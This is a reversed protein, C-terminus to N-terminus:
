LFNHIIKNKLHEIKRDNERFIITEEGVIVPASTGKKLMIDATEVFAEDWLGADIFSQLLRRGGEVLISNIKLNNLALLVEKLSDGGASMPVFTTNGITTQTDVTETFIYTRVANNLLNNLEPIRGKRDIVVRVPNRGYWLRTTLSPNDVVATDTGVMISAVEARLKHVLMSTFASSIQTRVIENKENVGAIYGDQSQAWKLYVYPRRNIQSMLFEKNLEDAEARMVGEVVEVGADKLMTIGRGAVEPFPDTTAVVVRPIRSDIILQACPPTKGYHSCPELSVYITSHPLLHKERVSNIANVEAHAQGYQRHFGEGIIRNNHVVVAGVMPNPAVYGRGMQALQLCRTMYIHDTDQM